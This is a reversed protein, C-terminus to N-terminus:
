AAFRLAAISAMMSASGTAARTRLDHGLAACPSASGGIKQVEANIGPM